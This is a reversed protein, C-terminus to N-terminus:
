GCCRGEPECQNLLPLLQDKIVSSTMPGAYTFAINGQKDMLFTTPTGTVHWQQATTAQLDAGIMSYPNGKDKLWHQLKTLDDSVNVGIIEVATQKSLEMIFPHESQCHPCWSAFFHVMVCKNNFSKLNIRIQENDYLPLDLSPPTVSLAAISGLVLYVTIFGVMFCAKLLRNIKFMM